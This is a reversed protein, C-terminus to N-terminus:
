GVAETEQEIQKLTTDISELVTTQKETEKLVPDITGISLGSASVESGLVKAMGIDMPSGEGVSGSLSTDGIELLGEAAKRLGQKFQENSIFGYSLLEKYEARIDKLKEIPSKLSEKLSDAANAMSEWKAEWEAKLQKTMEENLARQAEAAEEAAKKFGFLKEKAVEFGQVYQDYTVFGEKYMSYLEKSIDQLEERPSRLSAKFREAKKSLAELAAAHKPDVLDPIDAIGAGRDSALIPQAKKLPEGGKRPVTKSHGFVLIKLSEDLDKLDNYLTKFTDVAFNKTVGIFDATHKTLYAMGDMLGTLPGEVLGGMEIGLNKLSGGLKEVKHASNDTAKEFAEQQQGASNLIFELDGGHTEVKALAAAFGVLGRIRGAIAAIDEPTAHRLKELVGSLGETRLTASNLEINYKKAVEIAKEQPKLFSRLIGRLGTMALDAELGARTLSVIAAGVEDFSMGAVNALAAVKGINPALDEFTLVGRKVIAFLKDSVLGAKEAELGYANLIVILAKTAVATDTFGAKATKTAETLVDMARTPAIQASLIDYLGKSLAETTEGFEAAMRKLQRAYRPMLKMNHEDLMTSVKSLQRGFAVTETAVKKLATFALYVGGVAGFGALVGKAVKATTSLQKVAVRSKKMKADFASTNAILNVMLNKAM